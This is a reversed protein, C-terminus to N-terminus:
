VNELGGFLFLYKKLDNAINILIYYINKKLLFSGMECDFDMIILQNSSYLRLQLKSYSQAQLIYSKIANKTWLAGM